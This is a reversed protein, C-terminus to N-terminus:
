VEEPEVLEGYGFHLASQVTRKVVKERKKEGLTRILFLVFVPLQM